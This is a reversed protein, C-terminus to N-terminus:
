PPPADPRRYRGTTRAEALVQHRLAQDLEFRTAGAPLGLSDCRLALLRLCYRHETGAAPCPGQYAAAAFDNRGLKGVGCPGALLGHLDPPLDYLLWHTAHADLDEMLLLLSRTADPPQTWRM